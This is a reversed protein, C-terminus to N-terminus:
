YRIHELRFPREKSGDPIGGPFSVVDSAPELAGVRMSM